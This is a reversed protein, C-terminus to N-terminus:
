RGLGNILNELMESIVNFVRSTAQYARQYQMMDSVEEDLSVGSIEGRRSELLAKVDEQVEMRNRINRIDQGLETVMRSSFESFSVDGLSAHKTTALDAIALALENAGTVSTATGRLTTATLPVHDTVSADSPESYLSISAATVTGTGGASPPPTPQQFFSIEPVVPDAGAPVYAQYYIENVETAISNAMQDLQSRITAVHVTRTELVAPLLGAQLDMEEGTGSLKFSQDTSDYYLEQLGQGPGFIQVQSGDGAKMFLEIQGNGDTPENVEIQAFKAIEELKKQRLDRLDLASGPKTIELRSVELNIEELESLLRNLNDTEVQIQSDLENEMLDFRSDIRHFSDVLAEASQFLVQRTTPDNPRASLSEFANFFTNISGRLGGGNQAIDDIFQADDARNITDGLNTLAQRLRFDQAELSSLYSIESLMQRDIFVDRVHEVGLAVMAGSTTAGVDSSQTGITGVQVRQRAYDPNNINAINKGAIQVSMSHTQLNYAAATLSSFLGPM